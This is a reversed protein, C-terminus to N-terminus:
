SVMNFLGFVAVVYVYEDWGLVFWTWVYSWLQRVDSEVIFIILSSKGVRYLWLNRKYRKLKLEESRYDLMRMLVFFRIFAFGIQNVNLLFQFIYCQKVM